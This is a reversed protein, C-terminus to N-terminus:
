GRVAAIVPPSNSQTCIIAEDPECTECEFQVTVHGIDFDSRMAADIDRLVSSAESIRKDELVVHASLVHNGSGITWVHLDHVDVVGAFRRLRDRVIPIEAHAPASELLVHAASRFISVVGAIIIAGVILSLLPDIWAQHTLVIMGGGAVVVIAGLADGAVHVLAARTNLDNAAGRLLMVGVGLNVVLGIAAIVIMLSGEPEVPHIFRQVAEIAIAITVGFLLGGNALAGLIELRAFGFTQTKTAPRQAHLSAILAIVLAVVDMTVHAADSILALSGSAFGGCLELVAVCATAALAIRLRGPSAGRAHDHAHGHDHAHDHGHHDHDDHPM